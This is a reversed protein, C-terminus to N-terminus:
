EDEKFPIFRGMVECLWQHAEERDAPATKRVSQVRGDIRLEWRDREQNHKIEIPMRIRSDTDDVETDSTALDAAQALQMNLSPTYQWIAQGKKDTQGTPTYAEGYFHVVGEKDTPPYCVYGDVVGGIMVATKRSM